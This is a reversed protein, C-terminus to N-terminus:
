KVSVTVNAQSAVGGVTVVVAAPGTPTASPVVAEVEMIGAVNGPAAGAYLLQAPQGGITVSVPLVPVPLVDSSSILGDQGPPNTAGEGTALLVIASGKDAANTTSNLKGDQNLAVAAGTGGANLTFLGPLSPVVPISFEVTTQGGTKLIVNATQSGAIGYPVIVGTQSGSVYLVPAPINNFTVTTGSLTTGVTGSPLLTAAAIPSPGVTQGTIAVIEGPAVGSTQGAAGNFIFSISSPPALSGFLGHKTTSGNPVGEAFYLTNQDSRSGNGFVLGWLGPISIDAGGADQLAGLLNGTTLDFANIKGDGFNGVLLAGGFAGWGAPAIAVGWPSNLAGNSVLRNLLTGNFDFVDVIGNGSGAVDLLKAADQKAYTVYLKGALNWINFPAYGSPLNPDTFGGPVTTPAFAGDFVDIGGSRFNAAYLLPATGSPNIALGKYVANAASNDVMVQATTGTNWASITGDETAFIFSAKTGNAIIFASSANQVQGTPRGPPTSAKGAPITVVIATIAGAGNYLTSNGALHNSVWFPSTASLSIGWPDVLNADTVDAEGAVNSVLNHKLYINAAAAMTPAPLCLGLVAATTLLWFKTRFVENM